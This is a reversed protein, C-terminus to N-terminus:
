NSKVFFLTQLCSTVLDRDGHGEYSPLDVEIVKWIEGNCLQQKRKRISHILFLDSIEAKIGYLLSM